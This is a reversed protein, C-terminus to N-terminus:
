QSNTGIIKIKKGFNLVNKLLYCHFAVFKGYYVTIVLTEKTGPHLRPDSRDVVPTM